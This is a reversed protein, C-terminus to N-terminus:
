GGGSLLSCVKAKETLRARGARALIMHDLSAMTPVDGTWFSELMSELSYTKAELYDIRDELYATYPDSM